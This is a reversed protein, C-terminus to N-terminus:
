YWKVTLMPSSYLGEGVIAFSKPCAGIARSEYHWSPKEYARTSLFKRAIPAHGFDKAISVSWLGLATPHLSFNAQRLLSAISVMFITQSMSDNAGM